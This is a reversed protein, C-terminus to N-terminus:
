LWCCGPDVAEVVGVVAANEGCCGRFCSGVVVVAACGVGDDIVTEAGGAVEEAWFVGV